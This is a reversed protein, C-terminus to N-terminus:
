RRQEEVGDHPMVDRVLLDAMEERRLVLRAGRSGVMVVPSKLAGNYNNAMTHSYAGTAPMAVVDGVTPDVLTADKILRDGSECHRGVLDCTQGPGSVRDVIVASMPMQLLVPELNDAMGGDVAVFTRGTRKITTVRYLTVTSEAVLSRGPEVLLQADAPLHQRAQETLAEAYDEVSPPHDQVAYRVGLGGGLDYVSFEGYRALARPIRRFADLDLIQSGVHCHLGVLDFRSGRLRRIAEMAQDFPLGFRSEHQGTVMSEHTSVDINPIVRLLLRQGDSGWRDLRDIDDLNDVVVTGVGVQTARRIDADTKANGHLYIDAPDFGGRLAMELEGLGAVDCGLGQQALVRYIATCPFSKSAFLVRSRPWRSEFAERYRTAQRRLADEDVVYSPTGFEDAIDALRRGGVVVHGAEDVATGSPFLEIVTSSTDPSSTAITSDAIDATGDTV